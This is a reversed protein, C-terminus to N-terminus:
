LNFEYSHLVKISFAFFLQCRKNALSKSVKHFIIYHQLMRPRTDGFADCLFTVQFVQCGNFVEFANDNQYLTLAFQGFSIIRANFLRKERTLEEKAPANYLLKKWLFLTVLWFTSVLIALVRWLMWQSFGCRTSSAFRSRTLTLTAGTSFSSVSSYFTWACFTMKRANVTFHELTWSNSKWEQLNQEISRHIHTCKKMCKKIKKQTRLRKYYM